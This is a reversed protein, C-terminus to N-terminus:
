SGTSTNPDNAAGEVFEKWTVPGGDKGTLETKNPAEVGLIKCRQKICEMIGNLFAPNGSQGEVRRNKKIRDPIISDNSQEEGQKSKRRTGIQETVEVEANEKSSEWADWYTNELQNIKTLERAKAKDITLVSEREWLRMLYRIDRSVTPQSTKLQEAISAQSAGRLYLLSVEKRRTSIEFQDQVSITM